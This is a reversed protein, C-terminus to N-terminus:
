RGTEDHEGAPRAPEPAVPKIAERFIDAISPQDYAFHTLHGSQQVLSLVARDDAGKLLYDKGDNSVERAVGQLEGTLDPADEVRVRLPAEERAKLDPVTGDAIVRGGSIITVSDCLREVLDLQHSSFLVTVGRAARDLLAKSMVDVAIPDLGSFPEDLILVEPDAVLCVALQVRQQNGLSLDQVSDKARHSLDLQELLEATAAKADSRGMGALEGFFAVQDAIKMKPYLGREEPMYGVRRRDDPTIPRRHFSISGGDSALVGMVIRMTTTKGAGNAGIFGRVQGAKLDLSVDDLARLDGFSKSLGEALLVTENTSVRTTSM